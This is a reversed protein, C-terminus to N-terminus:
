PCISNSCPQSRRSSLSNNRELALKRIAGDGMRTHFRGEEDIQELTGTSIHEPDDLEWCIVQSGRPFQERLFALWEKSITRM